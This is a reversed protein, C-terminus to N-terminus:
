VCNFTNKVLYTRYKKHEKLFKDSEKVLEEYQKKDFGTHKCWKNAAENSDVPKIFFLLFNRNYNRGKFLKGIQEDTLRGEVVFRRKKVENKIYEKQKELSDKENPIIRIERRAPSIDKKYKISLVKQGFKKAIMNAFHTRGSKDEGIVCILRYDLDKRDLLSNFDAAGLEVHTNKYTTKNLVLEAAGTPRFTIIALVLIFIFLLLLFKM